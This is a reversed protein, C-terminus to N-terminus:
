VGFPFQDSPDSNPDKPDWKVIIKGDESTDVGGIRRSKVRRVPVAVSYITGLEPDTSLNVEIEEETEIDVYASVAQVISERMGTLSDPTIGCRDAVLIMRLRNKGEDKPTLVPPKEPFFIQWAAKLKAVFGQLGPAEPVPHGANRLHALHADSVPGAGAKSSSRVHLRNLTPKSVRRTGKRGSWSRHPAFTGQQLLTAM